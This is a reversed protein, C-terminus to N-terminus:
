HLALVKKAENVFQMAIEIYRFNNYAWYIQSIDDEAEKCQKL